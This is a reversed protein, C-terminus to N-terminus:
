RAVLLVEVRRGVPHFLRQLRVARGSADDANRWMRETRYMGHPLGLMQKIWFLGDDDVVAIEGAVPIPM